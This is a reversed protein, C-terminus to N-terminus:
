WSNFRIMSGWRRAGPTNRSKQDSGATYSHRQGGAKERRRRRAAADGFEVLLGSSTSPVLRGVTEESEEARVVDAPQANAAEEVRATEAHEGHATAAGGEPSGDDVSAGCKSEREYSQGTPATTSGQTSNQSGNAAPYHQDAEARSPGVSSEDTVQRNSSLNSQEAAKLQQSLLENRRQLAKVTRKHKESRRKSESNLTHVMDLLRDNKKSLNANADVLSQMSGGSGNVDTRPRGKREEDNSGGKDAELAENEVKLQRVKSSLADIKKQQDVIKMRLDLNDCRPGALEGHAFQFSSLPPAGKGM